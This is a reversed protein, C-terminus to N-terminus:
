GWWFDCVGGFVVGSGSDGVVRGDEMGEETASSRALAWHGDVFAFREFIASVRVNHAM